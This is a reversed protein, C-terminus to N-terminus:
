RKVGFRFDSPLVGRFKLESIALMMINDAKTLELDDLKLQKIADMKNAEFSGAAYLRTIESKTEAIRQQKPTLHSLKQQQILVVPQVQVEETEISTDSPIEVVDISPTRVETDISPIESHTSAQKSQKAFDLLMDYRLQVLMKQLEETKVGQMNSLLSKLENLQKSLNDAFDKMSGEAIKKMAKSESIEDFGVRLSVILEKLKKVELQTFSVWQRRYDNQLQFEKLLKAQKGAIDRWINQGSWSINSAALEDKAIDKILIEARYNASQIPEDFSAVFSDIQTTFNEFTNITVNLKDLLDYNKNFVTDDFESKRDAVHIM